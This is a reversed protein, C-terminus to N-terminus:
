KQQCTLNLKNKYHFFLFLFFEAAEMKEQIIIKYIHLYNLWVPIVGVNAADLSSSTWVMSKSKPDLRLPECVPVHGKAFMQLNHDM